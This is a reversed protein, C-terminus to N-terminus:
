FLPQKSQILNEVAQASIPRSLLFGQVRACGLSLLAQLQEDEEIGEATVELQLAGALDIIAKVISLTKQCGPIKGVFSQDIKIADVPIRDLYSLSAYGTGFDDLAFRVGLAQAAAIVAIIPELTSFLVTETVELQLSSPKLGTDALIQKLIPIFQSDTLQHGSVNVSLQLPCASYKEHWERMQKCAERLVRGGIQRILGSEEACGIFEGPLLRGREPHSWRVLAEVGKLQKTALDYIPQYETYFESHAMAHQLEVDLQSTAATASCMADEFVLFGQGRLKAQAVAIGADRLMEEPTTRSNTAFTVGISAGSFIDRASLQLPVRLAAVIQAALALVNEELGPQAILLAFDDCGVRAIIADPACNRLREAVEVLLIDGASHGFSENIRSLHDIDVLLLAFGSDTDSARNEFAANLLGIFYQRNCLATLEDVGAFCRPQEQSKVNQM